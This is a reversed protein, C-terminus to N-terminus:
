RGELRKAEKLVAEKYRKQVPALLYADAFEAASINEIRAAAALAEAFGISVRVLRGNREVDASAAKKKAMEHTGTMTEM